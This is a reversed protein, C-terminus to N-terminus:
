IVVEVARKIWQVREVLQIEQTCLSKVSVEMNFEPNKTKKEERNDDRKKRELYRLTIAEGYNDCSIM